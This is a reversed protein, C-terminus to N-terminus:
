VSQLPGDPGGHQSKRAGSVDHLWGSKFISAGNLTATLTVSRAM